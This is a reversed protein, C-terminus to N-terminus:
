VVSSMWLMGYGAIGIVLGIEPVERVNHSSSIETELLVTWCVVRM